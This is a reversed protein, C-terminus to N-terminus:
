CGAYCEVLERPLGRNELWSRSRTMVVNHRAESEKVSTCVEPFASVCFAIYILRAVIGDSQWAGYGPEVSFLWPPGLNGVYPLGETTQLLWVSHDTLVRHLAPDLHELREVSSSCLSLFGPDGLISLRGVRLRRLGQIRAVARLWLLVVPCIVYTALLRYSSYSRLKNM